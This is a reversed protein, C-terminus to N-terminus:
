KFLHSYVVEHMIKLIYSLNVDANKEDKGKVFVKVKM